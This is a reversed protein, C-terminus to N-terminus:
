FRPLGAIHEGAELRRRRREDVRLGGLVSGLVVVSMGLGALASHTSGFVGLGALPVMALRAPLSRAWARFPSTPRAEATSSM